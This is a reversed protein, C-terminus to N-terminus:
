RWYEVLVEKERKGEGDGDYMVVVMVGGGKLWEVVEEIGEIRRDGESSM